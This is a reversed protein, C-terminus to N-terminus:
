PTPPTRKWRTVIMAQRGTVGDRRHSFWRDADHVTCERRQKHMTLVGAEYLAIQTAALLDLAPRGDLTRQAVHPGFRATLRELDAEGFEYHCARASPGIVAEVVRSGDPDLARVANGIVGAELGKWGAHVAAVADTTALAIPVCDAALVVLPLDPVTTFVADAEAGSVSADTAEVVRAGHVQRLWVWEDPDEPVDGKEALVKAVRRRNEAVADPDDGVHDALNLTDYPPASAGGARLTFWVRACESALTTWQLRVV